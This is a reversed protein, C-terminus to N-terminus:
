PDCCRISSLGLSSKSGCPDSLFQPGHALLFLSGILIKQSKESSSHKASKCLFGHLFCCSFHLLLELDLLSDQVAICFLVPSVLASLPNIERIDSIPSRARGRGASSGRNLQGSLRITWTRFWSHLGVTRWRRGWQGDEFVLVHSIFEAVLM